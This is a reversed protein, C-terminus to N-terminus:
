VSDQMGNEWFFRQLTMNPMSLEISFPSTEKSALLM